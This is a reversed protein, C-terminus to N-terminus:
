CTARVLEALLGYVRRQSTPCGGEVLSLLLPEVGGRPPRAGSVIRKYPTDVFRALMGALEGAVEWPRRTGAPDLMGVLELLARDREALREAHRLADITQRSVAALTM